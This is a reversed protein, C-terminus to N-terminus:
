QRLMIVGMAIQWVLAVLMGASAIIAVLALPLTPSTWGFLLWLFSWGGAIVGLRGVWRPAVSSRLSALSILLGAVGLTLASGIDIAILNLTDTIAQYTDLIPQTAATAQANALELLPQTASDVMALMYIGAVLPAGTFNAIAGLQLQLLNREAHLFQYFGVTMPIFLITGLFGLWGYLMRSGGALNTAMTALYLLASLIACVGDTRVLAKRSM